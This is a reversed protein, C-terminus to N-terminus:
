YGLLTFLVMKLLNKSTTSGMVRMFKEPPLLKTWSSLAIYVSFICCKTLDSVSLSITINSMYVFSIVYCLLNSKKIARYSYLHLFSFYVLLRFFACGACSLSRTLLQDFYLLLLNTSIDISSSGIILCSYLTVPEIRTLSHFIAFGRSDVRIGTSCM